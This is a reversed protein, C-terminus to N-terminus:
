NISSVPTGSTITKPKPRSRVPERWGTTGAFAAPAGPSIGPLEAGAYLARVRRPAHNRAAAFLGPQDDSRGSQQLYLREFSGLARRFQRAVERYDALHRASLHRSLLNIKNANNIIRVPVFSIM